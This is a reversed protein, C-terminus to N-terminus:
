KTLYKIAISILNIRIVTLSSSNKMIKIIFYFSFHKFINKKYIKDNKSDSLIFLKRIKINIPLLHALDLFVNKNFWWSQTEVSVRSYQLLFVIIIVATERRAQNIFKDNRRSIRKHSQEKRSVSRYKLNNTPSIRSRKVGM